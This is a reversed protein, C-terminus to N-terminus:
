GVLSIFLGAVIAIISMVGLSAWYVFGQGTFYGGIGGAIGTIVLAMFWDFGSAFVMVLYFILLGLLLAAYVSVGMVSQFTKRHESIDMQGHTYEDAM